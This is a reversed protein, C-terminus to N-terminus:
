NNIEFAISNNDLPQGRSLKVFAGVLIVIVDTDITCVEIRKLVQQLAHLIHWVLRTDAEEHYCSWVALNNNGISVVTEGLAAYVAQTLM